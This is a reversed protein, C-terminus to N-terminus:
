FLHADPQNKNLKIMYTNHLKQTFFSRFASVADGYVDVRFDECESNEGKEQSKIFVKM